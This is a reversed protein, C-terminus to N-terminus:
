KVFRKVVGKAIMLTGLCDLVLGVLILDISVIDYYVLAMYYCILVFVRPVFLLLTYGYVRNSYTNIVPSYLSCFITLIGYFSFSVNYWFNYEYQKGFFLIAISSLIFLLFFSPIFGKKFLKDIKYVLLLKNDHQAAHVFLVNGIIAVALGAITVSVMAYVSYIGLADQGLYRGIIFRDSLLAFSSILSSSAFLIGSKMIKYSIKGSVYKLSFYSMFSKGYLIIVFFSSGAISLIFYEFSTKLFILLFVTCFIFAVISELARYFAQKKFLSVGRALGELFFKFSYIIILGFTIWVLTKHFENFYGVFKLVIFLSLGCFFLSLLMVALASSVYSKRKNPNARALEKTLSMDIGSACFTRLTNAALFVFSAIGYQEPGMMRGSVVHVFFMVVSAFLVGVSSWKLNKKLQPNVLNGGRNKLLLYYKSFIM